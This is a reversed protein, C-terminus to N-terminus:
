LAICKNYEQTTNLLVMKLTRAAQLGFQQKFQQEFTGNNSEDNVTTTM